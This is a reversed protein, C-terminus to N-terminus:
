LKPIDLLPFKIKYNLSKLTWLLVLSIVEGPSLLCHQLESYLMFASPIPVKFPSALQPFLLWPSLFPTWFYMERGESNFSILYCYICPESYVSLSFHHITINEQGHGVFSLWITIKKCPDRFDLKPEKRAGKWYYWQM